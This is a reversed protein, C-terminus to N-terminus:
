RFQKVVERLIRRWEVVVCVVVIGHVVDTFVTMLWASVLSGSAFAKM